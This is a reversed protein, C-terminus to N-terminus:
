NAAGRASHSQVLTTTSCVDREIKDLKQQLRGVVLEMPLGTAMEREDESAGGGKEAEKKKLMRGADERWSEATAAEAEAAVSGKSAAPLYRTGTTSPADIADGGRHRFAGRHTPLEQDITLRLSLTSPPLLFSPMSRPPSSSTSARSSPFPSPPSSGVHALLPIARLHLSCVPRAFEQLCLLLTQRPQEKGPWVFSSHGGAFFEAIFVRPAVLAAAASGSQTEPGLSMWVSKM